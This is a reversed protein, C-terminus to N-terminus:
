KVEATKDSYVIVEFGAVFLRAVITKAPPPPPETSGTYNVTVDQTAKGGKGDYVTLRFTYQGPKPLKVNECVVWACANVDWVNVGSPVAIARWDASKYNYSGSGDLTAVGGKLTIKGNAVLGPPALAGPPVVPSSETTKLFWEFVNLEPNVLGWGNPAAPPADPNLAESAGGHGAANFITMTAHVTPKLDNIAKVANRTYEVKTGVNDDHENHFFWCALKQNVINSWNVNQSTMAIPVLCAFKNANAANAAYRVIDGAGLSFGLLGIREKDINFKSLAYSRAYDIEADYSDSTQPAVLIFKYKEVAKLYGKPIEGNILVELSTSSGPGRSAIGACWVQLPYLKGEQYDSPKYIVLGYTGTGAKPVKEIIQAQLLAPLILLLLILTNKM